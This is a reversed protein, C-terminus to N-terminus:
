LDGRFRRPSLEEASIGRDTLDDPLVGDVILERVARAMAPSTMIGFGGQGALWFFGTRESDEGVVPKRDSVFSRLGAWASRVHRIDMITAKRIREIALAVDQEEPRVDHPEMPTEEALSGLFQTGEPKFYWDEGIDVVFPMRRSDVGEPAPFTFATRRMPVLGVPKSGALEAVRDCWAGAANVVVPAEVTEGGASVRWRGNRFEFAEVEADVRIVGGRRRTGQVFGQHLAHVDIERASPEIIAAAVYERRLVPCLELAEESAVLRVSPGLKQIELFQFTVEGIQDSRGVFMLPLPSLLPHDAFGSPPDELFSRSAMALLRVVGSEYAETFVAASRGTTHYGLTPERELLVVRGHAALEYAASAGAIGGGVVVFDFTNM